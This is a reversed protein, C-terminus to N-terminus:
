WEGLGRCRFGGPSSTAGFARIPASARPGARVSCAASWTRYDRPHPFYGRTRCRRTERATSEHTRGALLAPSWRENLHRHASVSEASCGVVARSSVSVSRGNRARQRSVDDLRVAHRSTRYHAPSGATGSLRHRQHRRSIRVGAPDGGYALRGHIPVRSDTSSCDTPQSADNGSMPM